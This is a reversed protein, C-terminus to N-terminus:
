ERKEDLIRYNREPGTGKKQRRTESEAYESDVWDKAIICTRDARSSRPTAQDALAAGVGAGRLM